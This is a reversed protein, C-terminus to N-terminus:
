MWNQGAFSATSIYCILYYIYLFFPNCLVVTVIAIVKSGDGLNKKWRTLCIIAIVFALVPMGFVIWRLLLAVFDSMSGYHCFISTIVLLLPGAVALAAGVIALKDMGSMPRKPKIEGTNAQEVM